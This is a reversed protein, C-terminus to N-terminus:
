EDDDDWRPYSKLFPWENVMEDRRASVQDQTARIAALHDGIRDHADKGMFRVPAPIGKCDPMEGRRLADGVEVPVTWEMHAPGVEDLWTLTETESM